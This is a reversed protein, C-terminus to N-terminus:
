RLTTPARCRYEAFGSLSSLRELDDPRDVDWLTVPEAWRLGLETLRERTQAMVRASGWDIGTFLSAQPQRLGVLVYGGDEAPFFVADNGENLANKAMNLHGIQLAPCDTGILLMAGGHASFAHAMRLGLDTGQQNCLRVGCHLQLARFFRHRTDPACYLTVEGSGFRTALRLTNLTLRRHLRAAGASGLAPILRTKAAGPQPAKAFIAIDMPDGSAHRIAM